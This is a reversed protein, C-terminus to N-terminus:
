ELIQSGQWQNCIYFTSEQFYNKTPFILILALSFISGWILGIVHNALYTFIIFIGGQPLMEFYMCKTIKKIKHWKQKNKRPLNVCFTETETNCNKLCTWVLLKLKHYLRENWNWRWVQTQLQPVFEIKTFKIWNLCM